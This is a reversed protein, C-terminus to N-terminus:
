IVPISYFCWLYIYDMPLLRIYRQRAAVATECVNSKMECKISIRLSCYFWNEMKVFTLQLSEWYYSFICVRKACPIQFCYIGIIYVCSGYYKIYLFLYLYQKHTKHWRGKNFSVAFHPLLEVGDAESFGSIGLARPRHDVVAHRPVGRGRGRSGRGRARLSGRGRVLGGRGRGPVLLGRKAAQNCGCVSFFFFFFMLGEWWRFLSSSELAVWEPFMEDSETPQHQCLPWRLRSNHTNSGWCLRTKELRLKRTCIWSRM